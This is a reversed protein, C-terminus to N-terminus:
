EEVLRHGAQASLVDLADRQEDALDGRVAGHDHDLVVEGHDGIQAVAQRHQRAPLDEGVPIVRAHRAVRIDDLSVHAGGIGSALWSTTESRCAQYPSDCMRCPVLKSTRAPSTSVSRPRLPAPFVVVRLAIMPMTALRVPDTRKSPRSSTFSADFWIARRPMASHGSSRPM